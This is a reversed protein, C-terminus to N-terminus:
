TSLLSEIQCYVGPESKGKLEHCGPGPGKLVVSLSLTSVGGWPRIPSPPVQWPIQSYCFNVCVVCTSLIQGVALFDYVSFEGVENVLFM